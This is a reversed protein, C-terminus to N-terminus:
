RLKSYFKNLYPGNSDTCKQWCSALRNIGVVYFEPTRSGIFEEFANQAAGKNNFVKEQLFNYLHKFFHYDTPSLDPSYAPYPLTEYALENFKQLTMRSVYPQLKDHLLIPGKRNILERRLRQMVEHMKNIEHWYKEMASYWVTAMDKKQPLKPRSFHKLVECRNMWQTSCRRNDYRFWKEGCTVIRDLFPYNKNCDEGELREGNRFRRFCHRATRKNVIGEGFAQNINRVTEVITCRISLNGDITFGKATYNSMGRIIDAINGELVTILSNNLKMNTVTVLIKGSMRNDIRFDRSCQEELIVLEAITECNPPVRVCSDVGWCLEEEATNEGIHNLMIEQHFGANAEVVECPTKLKLAVEMGRCVGKEIIVTSSSTCRETKFSYEQERQTTNTFTTKFLIKEEKPVNANEKMGHINYEPELSEQFLKTWNINYSLYKKKIKSEAKSKTTDFILKAWTLVIEELDVLNSTADEILSIYIRNNVYINIQVILLHKHNM